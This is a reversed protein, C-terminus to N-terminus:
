PLRRRRLAIVLAVVMLAVLAAAVPAWRAAGPGSPAVPLTVPPVTSGTAGDGITGPTAEIVPADDLIAALGPYQSPFTRLVLVDTPDDIDVSLLRSGDMGLMRGDAVLFEVPFVPDPEAILDGSELHWRALAPENAEPPYQYLRITRDDIWGAVGATRLGELEATTTGSELDLVFLRSSGDPHLEAVAIQRGDPSVIPSLWTAPDRAPGIDHLVRVTGDARLHVIQTGVVGEGGIAVWGDFASAIQQYRGSVIPHDPRGADLISGTPRGTDDITEVAVLISLGEPDACELLRYGFAELATTEFVRVNELTAVDIVTITGPGAIALLRDGPCAVVQDGGELGAIARGEADLLQLPPRGASRVVLRPPGRGDFVTPELAALLADASMTSCLGGTAVDGEMTLVVAVREGPQVEFGCSAGSSSSRVPVPNGLDGKVWREVDFLYTVTGTVPNPVGVREILSGVFVAPAQSIAVYPDPQACSCASASRAGAVLLLGLVVGFTLARVRSPSPSRRGAPIM